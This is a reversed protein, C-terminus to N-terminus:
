KGKRLRWGGNRPPPGWWGAGATPNFPQKAMHFDAGGGLDSDWMQGEPRIPIYRGWLGEENGCAWVFTKPMDNPVDRWWFSTKQFTLTGTYYMTDETGCKYRLDLHSNIKKHVELAQEKAIRTLELVGNVDEERQPSEAIVYRGAYPDADVCSMSKLERELFRVEQASYALRMWVTDTKLTEIMKKLNDCHTKLEAETLATPAAPPAKVSSPLQRASLPTALLVLSVFLQIPLSVRAQITSLLM